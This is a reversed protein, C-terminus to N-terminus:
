FQYTFAKIKRQWAAFAKADITQHIKPKPALSMNDISIQWAAFANVSSTYDDVVNNTNDNDDDAFSNDDDKVFSNDNDNVSSNDDEDFYSSNDDDDDVYSNAPQASRKMPSAGDAELHFMMSSPLQEAKPGLKVYGSVITGSALMAVRLYEDTVLKNLLRRIDDRTWTKLLGHYITYGGIAFSTKTKAGGFLEIACNKSPKSSIGASM